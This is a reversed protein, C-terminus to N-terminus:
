IDAGLPGTSANFPAQIGANEAWFLADGVRVRHIQFKGLGLTMRKVLVTSDGDINVFDQQSLPPASWRRGYLLPKRAGPKPVNGGGTISYSEAAKKTGSAKSAQAAYGLAIGGVVLGAQIATTLGGAAAGAGFLASGALLPAAYPALAILAISAIALGISAIGKGLPAATIVVVDHPGVLTKSWTARLRVTRDNPQYIEAADGRRHVAVIFPRGAAPRHRAVITSLRRRRNPLRVPESRRQGVLNTTLVLTM